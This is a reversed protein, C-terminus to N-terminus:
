DDNQRRSDDRNELARRLRRALGDEQVPPSPSSQNDPDELYEQRLRAMKTRLNQSRASAAQKAFTDREAKAMGLVRDMLQKAQDRTLFPADATQFLSKM